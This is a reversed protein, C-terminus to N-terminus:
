EEWNMLLDVSYWKGGEYEMIMSETNLKAFNFYGLRFFAVDSYEVTAYEADPGTPAKTIVEEDSLQRSDSTAEEERPEVSYLRLDCTEMDGDEETRVPTRVEVHIHRPRVEQLGSSDKFIFTIGDNYFGEVDGKKQMALHGETFRFCFM